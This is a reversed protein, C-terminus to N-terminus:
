PECCKSLTELEITIQNFFEQVSLSQIEISRVLRDLADVADPDNLANISLALATIARSSELNVKAQAQMVAALKQITLPRM